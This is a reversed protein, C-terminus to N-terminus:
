LFKISKYFTEFAPLNADFTELSSRYFIVYSIGKKILFYYKAKYKRKVNTATWANNTKDVQFEKMDFDSFTLDALKQISSLSVRNYARIIISPQIGSYISTLQWQLETKLSDSEDALGSLEVWSKPVSVKFKYKDNKHEVSTQGSANFSVILAIVLVIHKM